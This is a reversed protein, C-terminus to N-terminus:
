KRGHKIGEILKGYLPRSWFSFDYYEAMTKDKDMILIDRNRVIILKGNRFIEFRLGPHADNLIIVDTEIGVVEEVKESIETIKRLKERFNKPTEELKVAIDLDSKSFNYGEAYSGFLIAYEIGYKDGISGLAEELKNTLDEM